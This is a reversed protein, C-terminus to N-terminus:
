LLNEQLKMNQRRYTRKLFSRVEKWQGGKEEDFVDALGGWGVYRALVKQATIDLDREGREIRNLM